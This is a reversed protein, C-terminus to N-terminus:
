KRIDDDSVCRMLTERHKALAFLLVGVVALAVGCSNLLSLHVAFFWSTYVIIFVRRFVNLVAHTVLDTRSLVLFSMLNYISYAAGNFLLLQGFYWLESFDWTLLTKIQSAELLITLPVLILLGIRSIYAFLQIEDIAGPFTSFLRKSIVARSSFCVNSLAATVFGWLHFTADDVCSIGVGLCIPLLTAYTLPTTGENFFFYGLAVSSIPEAAKVTEAFSPPALSFAINTFIFGLTYSVSIPYVLNQFMLQSQSPVHAAPHSTTPRRLRLVVLTALTASLFQITCLLFPLRRINM